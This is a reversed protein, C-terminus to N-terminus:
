QDKIIRKNKKLTFLCVFSNLVAGIRYLLFLYFLLVAQKYKVYLEAFFLTLM